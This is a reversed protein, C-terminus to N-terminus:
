QNKVPKITAAYQYVSEVKGNRNLRWSEQFESSDKKGDTTTYIEKLWILVWDEKTDRHRLPVVSHIDSKVESYMKRFSKMTGIISDRTGIMRDGNALYVSVSDAFSKDFSEFSGTMWDKGINLIMLANKQDGAEWTPSYSVPLPYSVTESTTAASASATRSADGTNSGCAALLAVVQWLILRKM